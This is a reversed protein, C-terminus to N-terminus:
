RALRSPMTGDDTLRISHGCRTMYPHSDSGLIQLRRLDPRRASVTLPFSKISASGSGEAFICPALALKGNEIHQAIFM